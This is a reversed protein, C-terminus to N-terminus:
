RRAPPNDNLKKLQALAVDHVSAPGLEIARNLKQEADDRKGSAALALGLRLFQVGEPKPALSISMELEHVAMELKGRQLAVLGVVGHADSQMEHKQINWQEMSLDQPIRIIEIAYLAREAYAEAQSLLTARDPRGAARNAMAKALSLLTSLSDPSGALAKEGAALMGDFDNLQECAQVQYQYAATLLESKPFASVFNRVAVTVIRPETAVVIELYSDLEEQSRAQAAKGPTALPGLQAELRQPQGVLALGVALAILVRSTGIM